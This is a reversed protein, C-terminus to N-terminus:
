ALTFFHWRLAHSDHQFTRMLHPNKSMRGNPGSDPRSIGFRELVEESKAWPAGPIKVILGFYVNRFAERAVAETLKAAREASLL